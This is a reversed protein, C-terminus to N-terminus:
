KLGQWVSNMRDYVLKQLDKRAELTFGKTEIPKLIKLHITQFFRDKNFLFTSKPLVEYAGLIVVPVIPAGASIAFVFPGAKFPALQQGYFRGGEPSLAFKEGNALRTKAEDYIKYVEDRNNRAIPLTGLARIANSFIPIRFLEAKAGFRVGPLYGALAFVDFFSTHSFLFLCGGAPINDKGDIIVDVGSIACCVRGWLCVFYDDLKRNNFLYHGVIAAPGIVIVTLPFLLTAVASRLWVLCKVAMKTM